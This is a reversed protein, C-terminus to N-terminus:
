LDRMLNCDLHQFPNCDDLCKVPAPSKAELIALERLQSTSAPDQSSVEAERWTFERYVTLMRLVHYSPKRLPAICSLALQFSWYRESRPKSAM